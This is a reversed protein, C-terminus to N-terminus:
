EWEWRVGYYGPVANQIALHTTGESSVLLDDLIQDAAGIRSSRLHYVRAPLAQQDFRLRLIYNSVPRRFIRGVEDFPTADPHPVYAKSLDLTLTFFHTDGEALSRDYLMEFAILYEDALERRRGVRCGELDTIEIKTVDTGPEYEYVFQTRDANAQRARALIQMEYAHLQLDPGMVAVDTVAVDQSREFARRRDIAALRRVAENETWLDGWDLDQGQYGIWRGRPKRPPLLSSLATDPLGLIEELVALARLSAPREPRRRGQQWYSLTSRGVHHGRQKLRVELRELTLNSDAIALQLASHFPGTRLAEELAPDLSRPRGDPSEVSM